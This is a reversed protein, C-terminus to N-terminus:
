FGVGLFKQAHGQPSGSGSIVSGQKGYIEVATQKPMSGAFFGVGAGLNVKWGLSGHIATTKMLVALGDKLSLQLGDLSEPLFIRYWYGQKLEQEWERPFDESTYAQLVNSHSLTFRNYDLKTRISM